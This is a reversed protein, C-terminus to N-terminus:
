ARRRVVVLAAAGALVVASLLATSGADGTSPTDSAPVDSSPTAQSPTAQSPTAQSPTAQSPTAQSPEASDAGDDDLDYYVRLVLVQVTGNEAVPLTVTGALVSRAENVHRGAWQKPVATVTQGVAGYLPFEAEELAYSGDPQELYHEVRYAAAQPVVPTLKPLWRGYLVTDEDLVTGDAFKETCGEDVYWGDFCFGEVAEPQRATYAGPSITEAAPPVAGGAATDTYRYSVTVAAPRYLVAWNGLAGQPAAAAVAAGDVTLVGDVWAFAFTRVSGDPLSLRGEATGADGAGTLLYTTEGAYAVPAGDATIHLLAPLDSDGRTQAWLTVTDALTLSQADSGGYYTGVGIAQAKAGAYARVVASGTISIGGCGNDFFYSCGAGIGAGGDRTGSAHSGGFATVDATGGIAISGPEVTGANLRVGVPGDNGGGIGAAAGIARALVRGGTITVSTVGGNDGGGIGAGGFSDSQVGDELECGGTATVSGGTIEIVGGNVNAGGGIGAGDATGAADVTGGSISVCIENPFPAWINGTVGGTGIGAGGGTLSFSDGDGGVATVTGGALEVRGTFVPDLSWMSSGGGAGIGAGAGYNIQTNAGGVARVTGGEIRITGFNPRELKAGTRDATLGNGGIGAGAACSVPNARDSQDLYYAGGVATLSGDGCITLSAGEAVYLGAHGPSGALSNEGSLILTVRGGAEVEVAPAFRAAETTTHLITTGDLTLTVDGTIRVREFDQATGRVTYGGDELLWVGDACSVAGGDERAVQLAASGSACVAAPLLASLLCLALALWLIRRM